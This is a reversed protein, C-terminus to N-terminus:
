KQAARLLMHILLFLGGGINGIALGYRLILLILDVKFLLGLGVLVLLIALVTTSIVAHRAIYDVIKNM